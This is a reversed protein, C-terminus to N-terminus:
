VLNISFIYKVYQIYSLRKFKKFKLYLESIFVFWILVRVRTSIKNLKRKIINKGNKDNGKEIAEKIKDIFIFSLFM